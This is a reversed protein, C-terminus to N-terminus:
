AADPLDLARLRERGEALCRNVKTYTWGTIAQIEAYSCGAAQLAVARREQPKLERLREAVRATRERRDLQEAPDAEAGALLDPDFGGGGEGAPIPGLLRRRARGAALAERRTVVQMWALLARPELDPAKTLLIEVARQFADDADAPCISFRRATRRIAAEHADLLAAGRSIRATASGAGLPRLGATRTLEPDPEVKRGEGAGAAAPAQPHKATAEHM